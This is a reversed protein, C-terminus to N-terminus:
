DIEEFDIQTRHCFGSHLRQTSYFDEIYAEIYKWFQRMAFFSVAHPSEIGLASAKERAEAYSLGALAASVREATGTPGFSHNPWLALRTSV